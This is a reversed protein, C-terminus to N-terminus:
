KVCCFCYRLLVVKRMQGQCDCSLSASHDAGVIAHRMWLAETSNPVYNSLSTIDKTVSKSICAVHCPYMSSGVAFSKTALFAQVIAKLLACPLQWLVLLLWGIWLNPYGKPSEMGPIYQTAQSPRPCALFHWDSSKQSFSLYSKHENWHVNVAFVKPLLCFLSFEGTTLSSGTGWSRRGRM